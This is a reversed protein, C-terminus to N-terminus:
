SFWTFHFYVAITIASLTSIPYFLDVFRIGKKRLPLWLALTCIFYAAAIIIIPLPFVSFDTMGPTVMREGLLSRVPIAFLVLMFIIYLALSTKRFRLDKFRIM